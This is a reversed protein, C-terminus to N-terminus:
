ILTNYNLIIICIARKSKLFTGIQVWKWLFISPLNGWVRENIDPKALYNKDKGIQIIFFQVSQWKLLKSLQWHWVYKRPTGVTAWHTLFGVNDRCTWDKVESLPNFIWLHPESGTSSHQPLPRLQLELEVGTGPVEM